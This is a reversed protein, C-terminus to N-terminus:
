KESTNIFSSIPLKALEKLLKECRSKVLQHQREYEGKVGLIHSLDDFSQAFGVYQLGSLLKGKRAMEVLGSLVLVAFELNSQFMSNDKVSTVSPLASPDNEYHTDFEGFFPEEKAVLVKKLNTKVQILLPEANEQPVLAVKGLLDRESLFAHYSDKRKVSLTPLMEPTTIKDLRWKYMSFISM